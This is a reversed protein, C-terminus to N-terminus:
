RGGAPVCSMRACAKAHSGIHTAAELRRGEFSMCKMLIVKCVRYTGEQNRIYIMMM